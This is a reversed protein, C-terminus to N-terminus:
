MLFFKAYIFVAPGTFIMADLRDLIGGHGPIATGSDKVHWDRKFMSEILDGFPGVFGIMVGLALVHGLPLDRWGIMKVVLVSLISGVFGAFFGEMTKNPSTLPSFKHRGFAKGAFMAFTDGMAAAAIAMFILAKGHSLGHLFGWFPLTASLYVVGLVSLGIRSTTGEFTTAVRMHILSIVFLGAILVGAFVQPSKLIILSVASCVGYIWAAERYVSEPPLALKFFEYLGGMIILLVIGNFINHPVFLIVATMLVALVIATIIRTLM